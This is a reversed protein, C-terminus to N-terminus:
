CDVLLNFELHTPAEVSKEMDILHHGSTVLRPMIWMCLREKCGAGGYGLVSM